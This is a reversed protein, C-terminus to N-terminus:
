ILQVIDVSLLQLFVEYNVSSLGLVGGTVSGRLVRSRSVGLLLPSPVLIFGDPVMQRSYTVHCYLKLIMQTAHKQGSGLSTM